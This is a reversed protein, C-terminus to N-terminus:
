HFISEFYDVVIREMTKEEDQWTITEDCLGKISNKQFRNFAKAHFYGTNRDGSVLWTNRSRQNWTTSEADLWVNLSHRVEKIEKETDRNTRHAELVQLKKQLNAKKKGM